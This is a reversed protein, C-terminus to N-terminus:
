KGAVSHNFINQWILRVMNLGQEPNHGYENWKGHTAGMAIWMSARWAEKIICLMEKKNRHIFIITPFPIKPIRNKQHGIWNGMNMIPRLDILIQIGNDMPSNPFRCKWVLPIFPLSIKNYGRIPTSHLYGHTFGMSDFHFTKRLGSYPNFITQLPYIWHFQIIIAM